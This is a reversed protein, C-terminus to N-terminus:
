SINDLRDWCDWCSYSKYWLAVDKLPVFSECIKPDSGKFFVIPM